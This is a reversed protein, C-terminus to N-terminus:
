KPGGPGGTPEKGDDPIIKMNGSPSPNWSLRIKQCRDCEEKMVAGRIYLVAYKHLGFLCLLKFM